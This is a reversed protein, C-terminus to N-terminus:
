LFGCCIDQHSKARACILFHACRSGFKAFAACVVNATCSLLLHQLHQHRLLHRRQFSNGQASLGQALGVTLLHELVHDQMVFGTSNPTTGSFLEPHVLCKSQSIGSQLPPLSAPPLLPTHSDGTSASVESSPPAPPMELAPACEAGEGHAARAM